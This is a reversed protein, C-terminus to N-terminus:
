FKREHIVDKKERRVQDARIAPLVSVAVKIDKIDSEINCLVKDQTVNIQQQVAILSDHSSLKVEQADMKSFAINLFIALVTILAGLIGTTLTVITAMSLRISTESGETDQLIFLMQRGWFTSQASM